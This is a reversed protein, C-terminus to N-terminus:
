CFRGRSPPPPRAPTPPGIPTASSASWTAPVHPRSRLLAAMRMAVLASGARQMSPVCGSTDRVLHRRGQRPRSVAVGFGPILSGESSVCGQPRVLADGACAPRQTLDGRVDGPRRDPARRVSTHPPPTPERCRQLRRMCVVCFAVFTQPEPAPLVRERTTRETLHEEGSSRM